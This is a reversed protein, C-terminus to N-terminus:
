VRSLDISNSPYLLAAQMKIIPARRTATSSVGQTGGDQRVWCDVLTVAVANGGRNKLLQVLAKAEMGPGYLLIPVAGVADWLRPAPHTVLPSGAELLAVAARLPCAQVAQPAQGAGFALLRRHPVERREAFARSEAETLPVVPVDRAEVSTDGVDVPQTAPPPAALLRARGLCEPAAWCRAKALIKWSPHPSEPSWQWSGINAVKVDKLDLSAAWRQRM